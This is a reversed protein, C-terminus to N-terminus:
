KVEEKLIYTKIGLVKKEELEQGEKDFIQKGIEKGKSDYQYVFTRGHKDRKMKGSGKIKGTKTRHEYELFAPVELKKESVNGM